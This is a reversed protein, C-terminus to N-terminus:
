NNEKNIWPLQNLRTGVLTAEGGQQTFGGFNNSQIVYMGGEHTAPNLDAYMRDAITRFCMNREDNSVLRQQGHNAGKKNTTELTYVSQASAATGMCIAIVLLLYKKM